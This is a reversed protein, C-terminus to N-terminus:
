FARDEGAGGLLADTCVSPVLDFRLLRSLRFFLSALPRSWSDMGGLFFAATAGFEASGLESILM